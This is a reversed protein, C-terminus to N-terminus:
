EEAGVGLCAAEGGSSREVEGAGHGDVDEVEEGGFFEVVEM